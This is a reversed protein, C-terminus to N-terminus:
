PKVVEIDVRESYYGNSEGVWRLDVAGKHTRFTYFTWTQGYGWDGEDESVREEAILLVEGVLDEPDGVVDELQVHECCDQHHLLRVKTGDDLTFTVEESGPEMGELGVVLKGHLEKVISNM